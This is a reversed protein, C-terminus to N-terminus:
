ILFLLLTRPITYTCNLAVLYCLASERLDKGTDFVTGERRRARDRLM